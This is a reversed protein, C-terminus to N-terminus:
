KSLPPPPPPSGPLYHGGLEHVSNKNDRLEPVTRHEPLEQANYTGPYPRKYDRSKEDTGELPPAVAREEKLKRRQWFLLAICAVLLLGLPIGVGLGVALADSKNSKTVAPTSSSAANSPTTSATVTVTAGAAAISTNSANPDALGIGEQKNGPLQTDRLLIAFSPLTFNSSCDGSRECEWVGSAPCPFINM